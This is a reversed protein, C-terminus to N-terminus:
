FHSITWPRYARPQDMVERLLVLDRKSRIISARKKAGVKTLQMPKKIMMPSKDLIMPPTSPPAPPKPPLPRVMVVEKEEDEEEDVEMDKKLSDLFDQLKKSQKAEEPGKKKVAQGFFIFLFAGLSILLGILEVLSM